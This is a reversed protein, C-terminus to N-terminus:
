AVSGVVGGGTSVGKVISEDLRPVRRRAPCSAAMVVCCPHQGVCSSATVDNAAVSDAHPGTHVSQSTIWLVPLVYRIAFGGSSSRAMTTPLMSLFRHLDATCNPLYARPCVFVCVREECYEAARGLDIFIAKSSLHVDAPVSKVPPLSPLQGPGGCTLPRWM